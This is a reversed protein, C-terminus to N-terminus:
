TMDKLLDGVIMGLEAYEMATYRNELSEINTENDPNPHITTWITDEHSLVVRKTGAPSIFSAPATYEEEGFETVVTVRGKSLISMHEFRHIRGVVVSDAPLHIERCYVGPALWNKVPPSETMRHKDDLAMCENQISMIKARASLVYVSSNDPVFVDGM